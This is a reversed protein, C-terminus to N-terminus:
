FIKPTKWMESWPKPSYILLLDIYGLDLNDLSMKIYKKAEEYSKIQAPVNTTVGVGNALKFNEKLVNM